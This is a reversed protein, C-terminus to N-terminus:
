NVGYRKALNDYLEIARYVLDLAFRYDTDYIKGTTIRVGRLAKRNEAITRLYMEKQAKESAM